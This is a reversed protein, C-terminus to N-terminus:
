DRVKVLVNGAVSLEVLELQQPAPLFIPTPNNLLNGVCEQVSSFPGVLETDM